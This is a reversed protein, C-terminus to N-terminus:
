VTRGYAPLRWRSEKPVQMSMKSWRRCRREKTLSKKHSCCSPKQIAKIM